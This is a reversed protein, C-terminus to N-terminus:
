EGEHLRVELMQTGRQLEVSDTTIVGLIWDNILQNKEVWVPSQGDVSILAANRGDQLMVGHLGIVPEPEPEPEPERVPEPEPEPEPELEPVPEPEPEPEVLPQRTPEFLPREAIANYYKESGFVRTLDTEEALSEQDTDAVATNEAGFLALPKTQSTQWGMWGAFAVLLMTGPLPLIRM